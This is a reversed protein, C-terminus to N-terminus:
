SFIFLIFVVSQIWKKRESRQGGVDFLLYTTADIKFRAESIGTSKVRSRLIDQDSPIYNNSGISDIQDFFYGASDNLQLESRREYAAKIGKDAWLHKVAEIYVQPLTDVELQSPAAMIAQAYPQCSSDIPIAM